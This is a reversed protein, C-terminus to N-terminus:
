TDRTRYSTYICYCFSFLHFYYNHIYSHSFISSGFLHFNRLFDSFSYLFTVFARTIASHLHACNNFCVNKHFKNVEWDSNQSTGIHFVFIYQICCSPSQHLDVRAQYPMPDLIRYFTKSHHWKYSFVKGKKKYVKKLKQNNEQTLAKILWKM